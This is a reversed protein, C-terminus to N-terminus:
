HIYYLSGAAREDVIFHGAFDYNMSMTIVYGPPATVGGYSGGPTALVILVHGYPGATSVAIAGTEPTQDVPRNATYIWDKANGNVYLSKGEQSTFYWYAFSTCERSPFGGSTTVEDLGANCWSMPYGGNGHGNDCYGGSGGSAQINVSRSNQANIRVQEAQLASIQGQNAKIQQNYQSQQGENYSLLSAQQQQDSDLQSQQQKQTVLLQDVQIKQAQQQQQLAAIEKITANLQNQVATRYEEKDVYASLDKSSALEEITTTQGDIYMAKLTASLQQKKQDVQQQDAIIQQQLKAQQDTSAQIAGEIASIQQQLADIAGQYSGAQLQLTSVTQQKQSNQNKLSDIQQQLTDAYVFPTAVLLVALVLLGLFQGRRLSRLSSLGTKKIKMNKIKQRVEKIM